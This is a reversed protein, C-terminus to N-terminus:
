SPQGLLHWAAENVLQIAGAADVVLVGTRMRRIILENLQAVSAVEAGRQEALAHSERIQRGLMHSLATVARYAAAFMLVEPLNRESAGVENQTWLLESIALAAMSITFVLAFNLPLLLAG